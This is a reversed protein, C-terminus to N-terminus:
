AVTFPKVHVHKNIMASLEMTAHAYEQPYKKARDGLVTTYANVFSWATRTEFEKYTPKRWEQIIKDLSRHTAIGAEFSRLILADATVDDLVHAQLVKVRETEHKSFSELQQVSLAIAEEFRDSGFRTHRRKVLIESCFSLNDCVFVRQGACFGLPFSKDTSNRIGVSLTVGDALGSKLDVTAFMRHQDRALGFSAKLIQFGAALIIKEAADYVKGHATPFWTDTGKPPKVANLEQRSVLAAGAHLSLTSTDSM